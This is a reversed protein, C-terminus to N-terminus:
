PDAPPPETKSEPAPGPAEEPLISRLTHLPRFLPLLVKPLHLPVSKPEGLTGTVKFEFAKALPLLVVKLLPGVVPTTKLLEAEVRANVRGQFDVTGRYQLRVLQATIELDDTHIVSNTIRYTARAASARSNGLGPALSNLLPSFLGFIPADWLLGNRMDVRGFGNWSNWDSPNAHTVDLVCNVRGELRNTPQSLGAVLDHLNVETARVHLRLEPAQPQTFDASVDGTMQGGYFTDTQINTVAVTEGRWVVTAQIQPIQFRWYSLPGGAVEFRMDTDKTGGKLPLHGNVRGYPPQAFRYPEIAATTQPGIPRTVRFPDIRAEGNTFYMWFNTLSIGLGPARMWSDKSWLQANTVVLHRNGYCLGAEVRDVHDGMFSFNTLIVSGAATLRSWDARSGSVEARVRPPGGFEFFGLVKGGVEGALPRAAQPDIGSDVQFRFDGSEEAYRGAVSLEGEPRALHLRTLEWNRHTRAWDVALSRVQVGQYAADGTRLSGNMEVSAWLERAWEPPLKTWAPCHASADLRLRPAEGLRLRAAWNTGRAGLAAVLSAPDLETDLHVRAERSSVELTGQTVRATSSGLRASAETLTLQPATWDGRLAAEQLHWRPWSLSDARAQWKLRWPALNTWFGWAPTTAPAPALRVAEVTAELHGAEFEGSHAQGLTATLHLQAPLPATGMHVANGAVHNSRSSFWASKVENAVLSFATRWQNTGEPLALTQATLRASLVSAWRTEAEHATLSWDAQAPSANTANLALRAVLVGQRVKAWPTQADDALVQLTTHFLGNTAPERNLDALVQLNRLTGWPTQAGAATGRVEARFSAPDRADGGFRVRFDPPSQFALEQWLAVSRRLQARWVQSSAATAGSAPPKTAPRRERVASANTVVGSLRLTTGLLHAQFESFEWCDGPLFNLHLSINELDLEAAPEGPPALPWIARGNLITLADVRFEGRWLAPYNLKLAVEGLQLHLDGNGRSSGVEVTEAVLGRYWRWRLRDFRLDVGRARLEAQLPAKIFDPVGIQSFYLFVGLGALVLLLVAIRFLRFLLRAWHWFRKRPPGM